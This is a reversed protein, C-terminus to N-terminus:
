LYAASFLFWSRLFFLLHRQINLHQLQGYNSISKRPINANSHFNMMDPEGCLRVRKLCKKSINTLVKEKIQMKICKAYTIGTLSIRLHTAPNRLPKPEPFKEDPAPEPEQYFLVYNQFKKLSVVFQRFYTRVCTCNYMYTM